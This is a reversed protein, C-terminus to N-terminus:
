LSEPEPATRLKEYIAQETADALFVFTRDPRSKFGQVLLENNWEAPDPLTRRYKVEGAKSGPQDIIVFYKLHLQQAVQSAKLVALDLLRENAVNNSGKYTILYVDNPFTTVAFEQTSVQPRPVGAHKSACGCLLLVLALWKMGRM